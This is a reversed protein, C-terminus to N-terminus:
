DSNAAMGTVGLTTEQGEATYSLQSSPESLNQPSPSFTVLHQRITKSWSGAALSSIDSINASIFGFKVKGKLTMTDATKGLNIILSSRSSPSYDNGNVSLVIDKAPIHYSASKATVKYPTLSESVTLTITASDGDLGAPDSGSLVPGLTADLVITLTATPPLARDGSQAGATGSTALISGAILASARFIRFVMQLGWTGHVGAVYMPYFHTDLVTAIASSV